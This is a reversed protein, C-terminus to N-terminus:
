STPKPQIIAQARDHPSVIRNLEPVFCGDPKHVWTYNSGGITKTECLNRFYGARFVLILEGDLEAHCWPCKTPCPFPDSASM